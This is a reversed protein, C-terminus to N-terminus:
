KQSAVEMINNLAAEYREVDGRRQEAMRLLVAKTL